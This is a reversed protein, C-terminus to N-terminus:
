PTILYDPVAIGERLNAAPTPQGREQTIPIVGAWTDSELDSEDDVPDGHRAKASIHDLPVAIVSTQKLETMTPRRMDAVRGPILWEVIADLAQEHDEDELLRGHGHIVVSRYNASSHFGSRAVVIGDVRTIGISLAAGDRTARVLGASNSGHLLLLDGDRAYLTPIVVPRSERVYAAHCLFGEDIIAYISTRDEVTREPLRNIRTIGSM